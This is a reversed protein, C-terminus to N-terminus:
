DNIEGTVTKRSLEVTVQLESASSMEVVYALLEM